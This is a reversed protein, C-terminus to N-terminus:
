LLRKREEDLELVRGNLKYYGRYYDEPIVRDRQAKLQIVTDIKMVDKVYGIDDMVVGYNELPEQDVFNTTELIDLAQSIKLSNPVKYGYKRLISILRTRYAELIVVLDSM